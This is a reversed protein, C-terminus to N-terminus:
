PQVSQNAGFARGFFNGVGDGIDVLNTTAREPPGFPTSKDYPKPPKNGKNQSPLARFDEPDPLRVAVGTVTRFARADVKFSAAGFKGASETLTVETLLYDVYLRGKFSLTVLLAKSLIECLAEHVAAVRDVDTAAQLTQVTTSASLMEARSGAAVSPLGTGGQGLLDTVVGVLGSSLMLFGGPRFASPQVKISIDAPVLTQASTALLAAAPAFGPVATIPTQTVVLDFSVEEPMIVVHDTIVAGDEVVHDTLKAKRRDSSGMVVDVDLTHTSGGEDLWSFLSTQIAETAM